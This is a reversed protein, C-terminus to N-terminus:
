YAEGRSGIRFQVLRQQCQKLSECIKLINMETLVITQNASEGKNPDKESSLEQIIVDNKQRKLLTEVEEDSPLLRKRKGSALPDEESTDNELISPQLSLEGAVNTSPFFVSLWDKHGKGLMYTMKKCQTCRMSKGKSVVRAPHPVQHSPSLETSPPQSEPLEHPCLFAVEPDEYTYKLAQYASQLGLRINENIMLLMEKLNSSSHIELFSFWDILTITCNEERHLFQVFNRSPQHDEIEIEWECEKILYVQLCCFVGCCQWNSKFQLVLPILGTKLLDARKENVETPPLLSLLSPMYLRTDQTVEQSFFRFPTAILLHKFIKILETPAFLRDVYHKEFNKNSLLEITIIGKNTFNLWDGSGHIPTNSGRVYAAHEVLETVKDLLVQTDCFVVNPLIAPYYHFIHHEHFFKLAECLADEHFNHLAKAIEVCETKSLVKRNQDTSVKEVTIELLFWWLPFLIENKLEQSREYIIERITKARDKSDSDCHKCDVPFIIEKKGLNFFYTFKQINDKEALNLFTKNKDSLTETCESQRDKHTGICVLKCNESQSQISQVLYKFNDLVSLHSKFSKSVPENDKYYEVLPHDDLSESLRLIYLAISIKPMFLPLLNHFHPQGGSDIIYIWHSGFKEQITTHDDDSSHQINMLVDSVIKLFDRSGGYLSEQENDSLKTPSARSTSPIEDVPENSAPENSAPENSAELQKLAISLEQPIVYTKSNPDSSSVHSKIVDAVIRQLDDSAIPKWTRPSDKQAEMKLKTTDRIQRICVREATSALPTSNRDEPPPLGLLLHKTSTKGTGAMGFFLINTTNVRVFGAKMAEDLAQKAKLERSKNRKRDELEKRILYIKQAILKYYEERNQAAEFMVKEVKMSYQILSKVRADRLAIPDHVPYIAEVLTRVLHQRLDPSVLSHWAQTPNSTIQPIPLFFSSQPPGGLGPNAGPNYGTNGQGPRTHQQKVPLCVPCDARVCNRWHNIIQHSTACHTYTCSRGAQCGAMHNLVSKMTKCHPVTCPQYDDSAQQDRDCKHAHLLLVLQQQIQKVKESDVTQNPPAGPPLKNGGGPFLNQVHISGPPPPTPVRHYYMGGTAQSTTQQQQQQNQSLLNDDVSTMEQMNTRGPLSPTGGTSGPLVNNPTTQQSTPPAQSVAGGLLPGSSQPIGQHPQQGSFSSDNQAMPVGQSTAPNGAVPVPPWLANSQQMHSTQEPTPTFGCHNTQIQNQPPGVNYMAGPPRGHMMGGPVAMRMGGPSMVQQGSHVQRRMGPHMGPNMHVPNQMTRHQQVYNYQARMQPHMGQPSMQPVMRPRGIQGGDMPMGPHNVHRTMAGRMTPGMIGGGQQLRMQSPHMDPHSGQYGQPMVMRTGPSPYMPAMGGMGPSNTMMPAVNRAMPDFNQMSSLPAMSVIGHAPTSSVSPLAPTPDTLTSVAIPQPSPANGSANYSSYMSSNVDGRPSNNYMNVTANPTAHNMSPPQTQPPTASYPTPVQSAVPPTVSPSVNSRQHNQTPTVTVSANPVNQQQFSLSPNANITSNVLGSTNNGALDDLSSLDPLNDLDDRFQSLVQNQQQGSNFSSDNQAMPVGQSTAPNGTVPVPPQSMANSQQMHSTQEPTPTFGRHNAQIQNQPPGVNYMAGPPRGHMMGGPNAMRMGPSQGGPSMHVQRRMRPHMGPNMHVPNQMTRQQQVYNYQARMQPHMDQPSMQPVMGPWRIQGDDMPMGPHNVHHTMAAQMPGIMERGQMQGPMGAYMGPHYMGPHGGQYGQPMAMRTEPSPVGSMMGSMFSLNTMMPTRVMPDFNQMSSSPAMSVIGHAPTSSVSPLAPTPDALTSVAIPQPSPAGGSANYSSYMSSNVDGRPSNNYM